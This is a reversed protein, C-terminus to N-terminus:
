DVERIDRLSRLPHLRALQTAHFLSSQLSVTFTALLNRCTFM